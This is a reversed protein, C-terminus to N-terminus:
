IGSSFIFLIKRVDSSENIIDIKMAKRANIRRGAAVSANALLLGISFEKQDFLSMLKRLGYDNEQSEKENLHFYVSSIAVM